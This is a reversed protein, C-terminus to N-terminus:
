LTEVAEQIAPDTGYTRLFYQVAELWKTLSGECGSSAVARYTEAARKSLLHPLCTVLQRENMGLVDLEEVVRSLFDFVLISDEGSLKHERM